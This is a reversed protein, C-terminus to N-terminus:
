GTARGAREGAHRPAKVALALYRGADQLMFGQELLPALVGALEAETVKRAEASAVAARLAEATTVGDAALYAARHAGSLVTLEDSRFAAREDDITLDEGDDVYWLGGERPVQKWASVAAALRATYAELPEPRGVSFGFFYALEDLAEPPLDYVHRYAPVAHVDSIGSALPDEFLPSFRDLRVSGVTNPPQLHTLLPVLRTMRRYEAPDEGPLGWLLNWVAEVGEERAWKLFQVGQLATTGKRMLRLVQTSLSEIGVEVRRVGAAALAALHERPLDPRVEYYVIELGPARAALAPLFTEFSDRPAIEDTFFVHCGPHMSTLRELEALAREPSKRRYALEASAQGCFTCRRREGWWCGRSTEVPLRPTFTGKLPSRELRAFYDSYDPTPLADLDAPPAACATGGRGAGLVLPPLAPEGEGDVVLDVAPFSRRLEEGMSGRCGAGGFVVLSGPLALKVREALALSAALQGFMVTFGVVDPRLAAIEVLCEDLLRPARRRAEELGARLQATLPPKGFHAVAHAPAGGALVERLYDEATTRPPRSHLDAFVWDGLLDQAQWGAITDYLTPSLTEAFTLTADVVAVQVETERLVAALLGLAPSPQRFGAFPLNVLVVRPKTGAARATGISHSADVPRTYPLPGAPRLV